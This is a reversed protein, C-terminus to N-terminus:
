WSFTESFYTIHSLPPPGSTFSVPTLTPLLSVLSSPSPSLPYLQPLLTVRLPLASDLHFFFPNADNMIESSAVDRNESDVAGQEIVWRHSRMSLETGTGDRKIWEEEEETEDVDRQAWRKVDREEQQTHMANSGKM